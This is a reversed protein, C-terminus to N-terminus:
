PVAALRLIARAIAEPREWHPNHGCDAVRVSTFNHFIDAMHALQDPPFVPDQDGSIALVPLDLHRALDTQDVHLLMDIMALWDALPTTVANEALRRLFTQPIQTVTQHWTDFFPDQPSLPAVLAAIEQRLANLGPGAPRLSGALLVLGRVVDPRAAALATATMAGMSHGVLIASGVDLRDLMQSLDEAFVPITLDGSRLSQGHGRLDPLILRHHPLYPTIRRFSDACDTLGHVLVLAPADGDRLVVSLIGKDALPVSHRRLSPDATM